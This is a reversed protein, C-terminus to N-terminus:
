VNIDFFINEFPVELEKTSLEEYKGMDDLAEEYNLVIPDETVCEDLFRSAVLNM